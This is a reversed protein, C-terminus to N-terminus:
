PGSNDQNQQDLVKLVSPRGLMREGFGAYSTLSQIPLKALSAWRWFVFAHCDVVTFKGGMIWPTDKLMQDIAELYSWTEERGRAQIAPHAATDASFRGPRFMKRFAIHVTSAFWVMRSVCQAQRLPDAPLLEVDPVLQAIYTLVAVTETFAVDGVVLTPVTGKPNVQLLAPMGDFAVVDKLVDSRVRTAKYALGSEELAIHPAIACSGCIFFLNMM